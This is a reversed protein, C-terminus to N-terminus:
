NGRCAMVNALVVILDVDSRSRCHAYKFEQHKETKAERPRERYQLRNPRSAGPALAYHEHQQNLKAVYEADHVLQKVATVPHDPRVESEEQEDANVDRKVKAVSPQFSRSLFFVFIGGLRVPTFFSISDM